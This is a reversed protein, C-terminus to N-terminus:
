RRTTRALGVAMACPVRGDRALDAFAARAAGEVADRGAAALPALEYLSALTAWVADVSGGLDVVLREITVPAFGAPGLLEDLGAAHRARRDGLRPARAGAPLAALHAAALDLFVAFANGGGDVAPGGGVVAAFTAGPRLVRALEGAVREADAMLTFALHSVCADLSASALPLEDARAQLLAATVGLRGRALALEEASLDVGVLARGPRGALLALLHGDGCGLDLIATAAAPVAAALADYSSGGGDIRGRAYAATTIGPHRAHFARLFPESPPAPVARRPYGLWGAATRFQAFHTRFGARVGPRAESRHGWV